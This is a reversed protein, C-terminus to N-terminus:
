GGGNPLVTWPQKRAHLALLSLISKKLLDIETMKPHNNTYRDDQFSLLYLNQSIRTIYLPLFNTYEKRQTSPYLAIISSFINFILMLVSCFTNFSINLCFLARFSHGCETYDWITKYEGRLFFFFWLYFSNYCHKHNIIISSVVTNLLLFAMKRVKLAGPQEEDDPVKTVSNNHIPHTFAPWPSGHKFKTQSSFLPDSCEACAYVGAVFENHLLCSVCGKRVILLSFFAM